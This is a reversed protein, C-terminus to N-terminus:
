LKSNEFLANEEYKGYKEIYKERDISQEYSYFMRYDLMPHTTVCDLPHNNWIRATSNISCYRGIESALPYSEM